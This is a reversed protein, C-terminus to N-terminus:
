LRSQNRYEFALVDLRKKIANITEKITEISNELFHKANNTDVLARKEAESVSMKKGNQINDLYQITLRNEDFEAQHLKKTLDYLIESLQVIGRSLWEPSDLNWKYDNLFQEFDTLQM